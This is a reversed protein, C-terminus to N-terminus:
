RGFSDAKAPNPKIIRKLLPAGSADPMQLGHGRLEWNRVCRAATIARGAQSLAYFLPLPRSAPGVAEAAQLLEEFQQLAASFTRKRAPDSPAGWQANTRALRLRYRIIRDDQTMLTAM